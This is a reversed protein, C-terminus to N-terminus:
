VKKATSLDYGATVPSGAKHDKDFPTYKFEIKTFNLSITETPRDGSSSVSYGSVMANELVYRAYIENDNSVLDIECKNGAKGVVSEEFWKYSSGDMPKHFTMESVSPHSAERNKTSGVVTGGVSRGVGWQISLVDVWKKHTDHTADGNISGFKVYIAM